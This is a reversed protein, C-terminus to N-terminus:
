ELAVTFTVPMHLQLNKSSSLHLEYHEGQKVVPSVPELAYTMGNQMISLKPLEELIFDEDIKWGGSDKMQFYYLHGANVNDSNLVADQNKTSLSIIAVKAKGMGLFGSKESLKIKIEPVPQQATLISFTFCVVFLLITFTKM